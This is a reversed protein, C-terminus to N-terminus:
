ENKQIQALIDARWRVIEDLLGSYINPGLPTDDLRVMEYNTRHNFTYKGIFQMPGEGYRIFLNITGRCGVIFDGVTTYALYIPVENGLPEGVCEFSLLHHQIAVGGAMTAYGWMLERPTDRTFDGIGCMECIASLQSIITNMATYSWGYSQEWQSTDKVNLTLVPIGEAKLEKVPVDQPFSYTERIPCITLVITDTGSDTIVYLGHTCNVVGTRTVSYEFSPIKGPTTDVNFVPGLYLAYEPLVFTPRIFTFKSESM